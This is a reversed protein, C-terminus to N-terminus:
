NAWRGTTQLSNFNTLFAPELPTGDAKRVYSLTADPAIGGDTPDEITPCIGYMPGESGNQNRYRKVAYGKSFLNDLDSLTKVIPTGDLALGNKRQLDDLAKRGKETNFAADTYSVWVHIWLGLPDGSFYGNRTDM